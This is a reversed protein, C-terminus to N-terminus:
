NHEKTEPEEEKNHCTNCIDDFDNFDLIKECYWNCCKKGNEYEETPDTLIPVYPM